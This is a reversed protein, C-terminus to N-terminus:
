WYDGCSCSGYKFHHFRKVDRVIIERGVIKSIYKIANHCDGCIRLNKFVQITEEIPTSILGFAIALKESHHSLKIEKQEQDVDHLVFSTDPVYGADKMQGTLEELKEYIEERQPHSRDAVIFEHVKSKVQIWSCGPEKKLGRNASMKRVKAKADWMGAAAYINSLLVYAADRHPELQLLREAVRKGLEMNGHTRCAALLTEWISADSEIGMKTIFDEAMYLQGSRGLLDVMCAYHEMRPKIGYNQIMLYFLHRGEEVLGVHSCASLVGLFTVDDPKIGTHEMQRFLELAEKGHGHQACAVVIVTWSVVDRKSMKNFVQQSDRISGCKSYMDVLANAVSVESEYGTKMIHAHIQRGQHLNALSAYAMLVSAFTFENAKFSEWQMQCFLKVADEAYGNQACGAIMATWSVTNRRFMKSLVKHADEMVGCRSYMTVLANGLPIESLLGVKAILGHVQRGQELAEPNPCAGLVITFTFHDPKMGTRQMQCFINVADEDHGNLTYAAMMANWSVVDVKDLKDFVERSEVVRACKAYM